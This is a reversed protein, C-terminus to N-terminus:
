SKASLELKLRELEERMYMVRGHVKRKTLKGKKVWSRVDVERLALFRAADFSDLFPGTPIPLRRKRALEKERADLRARMRILLDAGTEGLDGEDSARVGTSRLSMPKTSGVGGSIASALEERVIRRIENLDHRSLSM